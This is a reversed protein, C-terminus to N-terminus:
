ARQRGSVAYRLFLIPCSGTGSSPGAQPPPLLPLVIFRLWWSILNSHFTRFIRSVVGNAPCGERAAVTGDKCVKINLPFFLDRELVIIEANYRHERYELVNQRLAKGPNYFLDAADQPRAASVYQCGRCPPGVPEQPEHRAQPEDARCLDFLVLVPVRRLPDRGDEPLAAECRLIDPCPIELQPHIYPCCCSFYYYGIVM